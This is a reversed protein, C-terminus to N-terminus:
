GANKSERWAMGPASAEYRVVAHTGRDERGVFRMGIKELVRHSGVNDGRSFAVITKLDLAGFGHQLCRKAAETALGQGRFATLLGYSVEIATGDDLFRLGCEGMFASSVREHAAFMGFGHQDWHGLLVDFAQNAAAPDRAGYKRINMVEPDGYFGVMDSRHVETFQRLSVRETVLEVTM